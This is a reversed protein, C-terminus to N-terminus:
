SDDRQNRRPLPLQLDDNESCNDFGRQPQRWGSCCGIASSIGSSILAHGVTRTAADTATNWHFIDNTPNATSLSSGDTSQAGQAATGAKDAAAFWNKDAYDLAGATFGAIAANKLSDASLTEKVALGLNGRNNITSTVATTGVSSAVALNAGQLGFGAPGMVFSTLIAIVTKAGAGLGSTEYKFSDHVEKVQRGDVDGRKEADKLWARQPDAKVM